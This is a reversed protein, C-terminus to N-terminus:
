RSMSVDAANNIDTVSVDYTALLAAPNVTVTVVGLHHYVLQFDTSCRTTNGWMDLPPSELDGPLM